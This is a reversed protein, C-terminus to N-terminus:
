VELVLYKRYGDIDSFDTPVISGPLWYNKFHQSKHIHGNVIPFKADDALDPMLLKGGRMVSQESGLSAGILDLHCFGAIISTNDIAQQFATDIVTQADLLTAEKASIDTTYGAFLWQKDIFNYVGPLSPILIRINWKIRRFPELADQIPELIKQGDRWTTMLRNGTDHNGPIIVTPVELGNILKIVAANSKPTPENNHFMDGVFVFMDAKNAMGIVESAATYIDDHYDYGGVKLGFHWDGSTVIRM